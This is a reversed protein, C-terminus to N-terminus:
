PRNKETETDQDEEETDSAITFTGVPAGTVTAGRTLNTASPVSKLPNPVIKHGVHNTSRTDAKDSPLM